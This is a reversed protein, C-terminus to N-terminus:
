REPEKSLSLVLSIQRPSVHESRGTAFPKSASATAKTGKSKRVTQQRWTGRQTTGNGVAHTKLSVCVTKPKRMEDESVEM